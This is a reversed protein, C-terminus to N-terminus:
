WHDAESLAQPLTPRTHIVLILVSTRVLMPPHPFTNSMERLNAVVPKLAEHMVSYVSSHIHSCERYEEEEEGDM